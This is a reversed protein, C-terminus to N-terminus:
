RPLLNSPAGSPVALLTQATHASTQPSLGSGAGVALAILGAMVLSRRATRAELRHHLRAMVEPEMVQLGLPLPEDALCSLLEDTRTM